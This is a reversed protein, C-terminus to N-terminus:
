KELTKKVLELFVLVEEIKRFPKIRGFGKPLSRIQSTIEGQNLDTVGELIANIEHCLIVAQKPTQTQYAKILSCEDEFQKYQIYHFYYYTFFDNLAQYHFYM